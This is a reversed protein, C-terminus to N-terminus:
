KALLLQRPVDIFHAVKGLIVSDSTAAVMDSKVIRLDVHRETRADYGKCSLYEAIKGSRSVQADFFFHPATKELVMCIRDLTAWTEPRIKYKGFVGEIDRVVGDDCVVGRGAAVAECTILVNFGDM